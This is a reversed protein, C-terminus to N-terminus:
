AATMKRCVLTTTLNCHLSPVFPLPFYTTYEISFHAGLRDIVRIATNCHEIAIVKRYDIGFRRSISRESTLARGANWAFGGECPLGVLFLGGAKLVRAVNGLAADLHFVHELNYVSLVTGFTEPKFPLRYADAQLLLADPFDRRAAQLASLSTDVGIMRLGEGYAFHAGTGCGLDLIPGGGAHARVCRDIVRHSSHHIAHYLANGHEFYDRGLEASIEQWRRYDPSRQGRDDPLTRTPLLSVIGDTEAFARGCGTCSWRPSPRIDGGCDPCSLIATPLDPRRGARANGTPAATRLDATM